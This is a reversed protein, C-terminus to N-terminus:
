FLTNVRFSETGSMVSSLKDNLDRVGENIAHIESQISTLVKKRSSSDDNATAVVRNTGSTLVSGLTLLPSTSSLSDINSLSADVSSFAYGAETAVMNLLTDFKRDFTQALYMYIDSVGHEEQLSLDKTAEQTAKNVVSQYIDKGGSSSISLSTGLGTTSTGLGLGTTSLSSASIGLKSLMSAPSFTNGVGSIIDGIMGLSSAGVVTLKLLNEATTNLDIGTGFSFISPINIGSTATGIMDAIKYTAYLAPNEAVTSGLSFKANEYLNELMQSMTLRGPIASLQAGLEQISQSYSLTSGTITSLLSSSINLASRLDSTSLGFAGGYASLVVKNQTSAIEQMYEVISALLKNTNSENLGNILMDAYDLSARSSAMVLLNQMSSSSLAEVNGSGLYGLAQSIGTVASESLGASYLSGLWKQVQYEFSTSTSPSMLASAELINGEVQNFLNNLYSTDMFNANLYRTLYAELGLRSATSDSQQIRIIRLLSSDFADFTTAIEDKITALFARQEINYSIGESVVKNLNSLLDQTKVYPTIGVAGTLRQELSTFTRGTGQVRANIGSQYQTFTSMVANISKSVGSYVNSFMDELAAGFNNKLVNLRENLTSTSSILLKKELEWKEKALKKQNELEQNHLELLMAKRTEETANLGSDELKEVYDAIEQEIRLQKRKAEQAWKEKKKQLNTEQQEKLKAEAKINAIRLDHIKQEISIEDHLIKQAEEVSTAETIRGGRRVMAM